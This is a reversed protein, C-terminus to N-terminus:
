WIFKLGFQIERAPFTRTSKGFTLTDALDNGPLFLNVRNFLNFAEARFEIRGQEGLAPFRFIKFLSFDVTAFGPGEFTNRGLDGVTGAEPIPFDSAKFLGNIFDSRSSGKNTNGFAPTNPRDYAGGQTGGGADANFDGTPLGTAPDIDFPATTFVGFAKGSQLTVITNLQWGGFVQGRWGATNRFIPLEWVANIALRHTVDFNARGRELSRNTIDQAGVYGVGFNDIDGAFPDSQEDIVKGFTYNVELSYGSSLRKILRVTAGHYNANGDSGVYFSNGWNPNLRDEVGDLLDGNVRNFDESRLLKRAANGTYGLEIMWNPQFEWQINLFWDMGYGTRIHPDILFPFIPSGNLGGRDNMGLRFNDSPTAPITYSISTGLGFIPLAIAIANFPPQFRAPEAFADEYIQDYAVGFGARIVFKGSGVPDWALGLRPAFNNHDGEYMDKVQGISAQAFRSFIDDGGNFIINSLKGDRETPVTYLDYRLGYNFTFHPTVKWSDQFFAGIWWRRFHRINRTFDGTQPDIQAVQLFPEDDIFDLLSAFEYMGRGFITFDSNEQFYTVDVGFKIGHSGVTVSVNDKWDFTNMPFNVPLLFTSGFGATGDDIIINPIEAPSATPTARVRLFGFRFDNVVNAGFLKTWGVAVGSFIGDFPHRFGRVIHELPANVSPVAGTSREDEHIWRAFIKDRGEHFNHDIRIMFQDTNRADSVTGSTLAIDPIGDPPGIAFEGPAPSGIDQETGPIPPPGPFDRFLQAAISDPRTQFVFQRLEPTETQFSVSDGRRGRFGEYSVFFFTHDKRIPGSLSFGFQNQLLPAPDKGDFFRRADLASNRHFEWATGHIANGGSKTVVNVIAGYNRGFESSFNSTQIEFEEVADVTPTIAPLGGIYDNNNPVGDLIYNTSRLRKGYTTFALKYSNNNTPTAVNANLPTVGAELVPLQYINRGNLPLDTVQRPAVLGALRAEETQVLPAGTVTIVEEITGVQLVFDIRLVDGVHLVVDRRVDTKFGQREAKVEYEGPSLNPVRYLGSQNTMVQRTENTAVNRVTIQVDPLVAGQEDTVVGTVTANTLQARAARPIGLALLVGALMFLLVNWRM